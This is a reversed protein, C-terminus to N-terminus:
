KTSGAMESTYASCHHVVMDQQLIAIGKLEHLCIRMAAIIILILAAAASGDHHVPFSEIRMGPSLLELIEHVAVMTTATNHQLIRTLRRSSRDSLRLM